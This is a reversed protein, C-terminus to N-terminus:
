EPVGWIQAVGYEGPPYVCWSNTEYNKFGRLKKGVPFFFDAEIEEKVILRWERAERTDPDIDFQAGVMRQQSGATRAESLGSKKKSKDM